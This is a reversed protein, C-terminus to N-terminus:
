PQPPQWNQPPPQQSYQPIAQVSERRPPMGLDKKRIFFLFFPTTVPLVIGLVLFLVAHEPDCSHYLDYTCIYTYVTYIISCILMPLMVLLITGFMGLVGSFVQEESAFGNVSGVLQFISIIYGVFFILLGAYLGIELGVLLKRRSRSKGRVVYQYQDSICGIIWSVGVWPLWALWPKHIGRRKAIAYLGMSQLVYRAISLAMIVIYYIILFVGYGILVEEM